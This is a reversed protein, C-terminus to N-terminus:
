RQRQPETEENNFSPKPRTIKRLDRGAKVNRFLYELAEM